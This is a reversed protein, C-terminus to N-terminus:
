LLKKVLLVGHIGKSYYDKLQELEVYGQKHYLQRAAVNDARVELCCNKVGKEMFVRELENLLRLGIGKRRHEVAVDLTYVRGIRTENSNQISGITFGAIENDEWAALSISYPNELLFAIHRKTFAELTFCEREVKDLTELDRITTRKVTIPM